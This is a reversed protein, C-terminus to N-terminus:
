MRREYNIFNNCKHIREGIFIRTFLNMGIVTFKIFFYSISIEMLHYIFYTMPNNGRYLNINVNKSPSKFNLYLVSLLRALENM